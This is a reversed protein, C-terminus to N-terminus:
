AYKWIFGGGQKYKETCCGYISDRGIKLEESAHKISEYTKIYQNDLTYQNVPKYKTKAIKNRTEFTVTKGKNSKSIKLRVDDPTVKGLNHPVIKGEAYLEKMKISHNPRKKGRSINVFEQYRESKKVGDSLAKYYKILEEQSYGSRTNGGTGGIAINYGILPDTANFKLIWYVERKNLHELTTCVELIEKKFSDKGYKKVAGSLKIGSGLYNIDNYSDKGIYIKGNILNTTKYIIM